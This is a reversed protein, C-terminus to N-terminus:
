SESCRGRAPQGAATKRGLVMTVDIVPGPPLGEPGDLAARRM